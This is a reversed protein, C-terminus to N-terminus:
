KPRLTWDFIMPDLSLSHQFIAELFDGEDRVFAIAPERTEDLRAQTRISVAASSRRHPIHFAPVDIGVHPLAADTRLQNRGGLGPCDESTAALHCRIRFQVIVDTLGRM